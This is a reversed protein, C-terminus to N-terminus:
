RLHLNTSLTGAKLVALLHEAHTEILPRDRILDFAEHKVSRLWRAKTSNFKTCCLFGHGRPTTLASAISSLFQMSNGETSGRRQLSGSSRSHTRSSNPFSGLCARATLQQASQIRCPRRQGRGPSMQLVGGEPRPYKYEVLTDIAQQWTRKALADDTASLFAKAMQLSLAPQRVSQNKALVLEAAEDSNKTGLSERRDTQSDISYFPGGRLGRQILRFRNKM